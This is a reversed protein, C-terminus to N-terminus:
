LSMTFQYSASTSVIQGNEEWGVFEYGDAPTAQVTASSGSNYAGGGTVTGGNEPNVFVTLTLQKKFVATLTYNQNADLLLNQQGSTITGEWCYFAYGENPEAYVRIKDGKNYEGGGSVTGGEPPSASLTVTYDPETESGAYEYWYAAKFNKEIAIGNYPYAGQSSSTVTGILTGKTCKSISPCTAAGYNSYVIEQGQGSKIHYVKNVSSITRWLDTTTDYGINWGVFEDASVAFEPVFVYNYSSASCADTATFLRRSTLDSLKLKFYLMASLGSIEGIVMQLKSIDNFAVAAISNGPSHTQTIPSNGLTTVFSPMAPM